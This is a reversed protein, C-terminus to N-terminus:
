YHKAIIYQTLTAAQEGRVELILDERGEANVVHQSCEQFGTIRGGFRRFIQRSDTWPGSDMLNLLKTRTKQRDIKFTKENIFNYRTVERDM